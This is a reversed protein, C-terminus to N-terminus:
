YENFDDEYAQGERRAEELEDETHLDFSNPPQTCPSGRLHMAWERLQSSQCALFEYDVLSVSSHPRCCRKGRFWTMEMSQQPSQAAQLGKFWPPVRAHRVRSATDQKADRGRRQKGLRRKAILRPSILGCRQM